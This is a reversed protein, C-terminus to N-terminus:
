TRSSRVPAACYVPAHMKDCGSLPEEHAGGRASGFTLRALMAVRGLAPGDSKRADCDTLALDHRLSDRARHQLIQVVIEHRDAPRPHEGGNGGKEQDEINEEAAQVAQYRSTDGVQIRRAEEARKEEADLREGGDAVPVHVRLGQVAMHHCHDLDEDAEHHERQDGSEHERAERPRPRAEQERPVGDHARDVAFEREHEAGGIRALVDNLFGRRLQAHQAVLHGFLAKANAADDIKGSTREWCGTNARPQVMMCMMSSVLGSCASVSSDSPSDARTGEDQGEAAGVLRRTLHQHRALLIRARAMRQFSAKRSMRSHGLVARQMDVVAFEVFDLRQGSGCASAPHEAHAAASYRVSEGVPNRAAVGAICQGCAPVCILVVVM